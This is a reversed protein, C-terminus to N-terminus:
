ILQMSAVTIVSAHDAPPSREWIALDTLFSLRYLKGDNPHRHIRLEPFIDQHAALWEKNHEELAQGELALQWDLRTRARYRLSDRYTQRSRISQEGATFVRARQPLSPAYTTPIVINRIPHENSVVFRLSPATAHTTPYHVNSALAATLNRDLIAQGDRMVEAMGADTLSHINYESSYKEKWEDVKFSPVSIPFRYLRIRGTDVPHFHLRLEGFLEQNDNLWAAHDVSIFQQALGTLAPLHLKRYQLYHVYDTTDRAAQEGAIFLRANESCESWYSGEIHVHLPRSGDDVKFDFDSPKNHTHQPGRFRFTM